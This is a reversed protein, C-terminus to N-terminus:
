SKEHINHANERLIIDEFALALHASVISNEQLKRLNEILHLLKLHNSHQFFMRKYIM